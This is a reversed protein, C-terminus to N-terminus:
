KSQDYVDRIASILADPQDFQIYESSQQVFIQKANASLELWRAQALAIQHEYEIHKPEQANSAPLHGVAHNGTTLVRV